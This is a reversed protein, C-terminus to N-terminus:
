QVYKTSKKKFLDYNYSEDLEFSEGISDCLRLQIFLIQENVRDIRKNTDMINKWVCIFSILNCIAMLTLAFTTTM